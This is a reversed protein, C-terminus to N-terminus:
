LKTVPEGTVMAYRQSKGFQSCSAFLTVRKIKPFLFRSFTSSHHAIAVHAFFSHYMANAAPFYEFPVNTCADLFLLYYAVPALHVPVIM